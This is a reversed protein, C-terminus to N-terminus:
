GAIREYQKKSLNYEWTNPYLKLFQQIDKSAQPLSIEFHEMLDKRRLPEQREAIWQMRQKQAWRM